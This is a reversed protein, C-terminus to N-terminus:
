KRSFYTRLREVAGDLIEDRKSFCFRIFSRPADQVFFAGVPIATVGAEATLHRCFDEDNGDFGFPSVDAVVFYTGASPLVEFGVARLGAALRDRKAQLGGALGAFYADDKGLGYAVAAQLNPPTTFTIYQHAKVVPQLLHPAGTVYGVKWGTLSFTKGASGIKLCRDRMGPLTMLPIHELGDFVIHEYVEDCVAFADFRQVFEALLELEARAFVKAAPNLPDNILVLKTKSSFVAELDARTFSWDPAKLSVFRPVGGALRIIPLYSDYMPQFLVVEDGPNILGLLSATLAETAGSTVMVETKWDIDLGYFRKGHAAVAQRLEPTGMMPPYQNWGELIAKAAVDLVDAPGREDPFGQGLNIAKHEDSLRSMVEFITTGYSSLIANGSKM